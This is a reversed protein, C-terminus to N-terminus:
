PFMDEVIDGGVSIQWNKDSDLQAEYTIVDDKSSGINKLAVNIKAKCSIKSLDKEIKVPVIAHLSYNREVSRLYDVLSMYSRSNLLANSETGLNRCEQQKVTCYNTVMPQVIKIVEKNDLPMLLVLSNIQRNGDSLMDEIQKVQDPPVLLNTMLDLGPRLKELGPEAQRKKIDNFTDLVLLVENILVKQLLSAEKSKQIISNTDASTIIALVTLGWEKAEVYKKVQAVIERNACDLEEGNAFTAASAAIVSAAFFAFRRKWMKKGKM